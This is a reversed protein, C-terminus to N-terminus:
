RPDISPSVGMGDAGLDTKSYMDSFSRSRKFFREEEDGEDVGGADTFMGWVSGCIAWSASRPKWGKLVSETLCDRYV